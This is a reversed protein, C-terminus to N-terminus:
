LIAGSVPLRRHLTTRSVTDVTQTYYQLGPASGNQCTCSFDLNSQVSVHTLLSAM